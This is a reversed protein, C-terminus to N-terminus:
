GCKSCAPRGGVESLPVTYITRKLGGCNLSSHYRNGQGTIYVVSLANRGCLECSYYKGGDENRRDAVSGLFVAEVSPNLYSCNRNRHYVNGSHTIFVYIEEENPGSGNEVDYGNWVHGYFRNFLHVKGMNDMSFLGTVDYLAVVDILDKEMIRSNGYFIGYRGNPLVTHDLMDTGAYKEVEAKVYTMGFVASSFAYDELQLGTKDYAYGYIMLKKGVQHMAIGISSQVRVFEIVSFLNLVAILFLSFLFAAEVTMSGACNKKSLASLSVRKQCVKSNKPNKREVLSVQSNQAVKLARLTNKTIQPQTENHHYKNNSIQTNHAFFPM